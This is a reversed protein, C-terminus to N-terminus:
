ESKSIVQNKQWDKDRELVYRAAQDFFDHLGGIGAWENYEKIETLLQDELRLSIAIKKNKQKATLLAM